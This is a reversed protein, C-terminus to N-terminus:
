GLRLLDTSYIFVVMLTLKGTHAVGVPFWQPFPIWFSMGHTMRTLNEISRNRKYFSSWYQVRSYIQMSTIRQTTLCNLQLSKAQAQGPYALWIHEMLADLFLLQTDQWWGQTGKFSRGKRWNKEQSWLPAQFSDLRDLSDPMWEM